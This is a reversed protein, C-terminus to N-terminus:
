ESTSRLQTDAAAVPSSDKSARVAVLVDHKSVQYSGADGRSKFDQQQRRLDRKLSQTTNETLFCSTTQRLTYVSRTDIGATKM